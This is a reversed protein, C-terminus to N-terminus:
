VFDLKVADDNACVCFLSPIHIYTYLYYLSTSIIINELLFFFPIPILPVKSGLFLFVFFFCERKHNM